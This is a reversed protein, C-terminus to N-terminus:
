SKDKEKEYYPCPFLPGTGAAYCDERIRCTFCRYEPMQWILRFAYRGRRTFLVWAAFILFMLGGMVGFFIFHELM